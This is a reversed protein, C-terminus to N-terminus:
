LFGTDFLNQKLISDHVSILVAQIQKTEVACSPFIYVQGISMISLLPPGQSGSKAAIASGGSNAAGTRDRSKSSAGKKGAPIAGRSSNAIETFRARFWRWVQEYDSEKGEFAPWHKRVSIGRRIKSQLM